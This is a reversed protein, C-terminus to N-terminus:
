GPLLATRRIAFVIGIVCATAILLVAFCWGAITAVLNNLSRDVKAVRAPITPAAIISEVSTLTVRLDRAAVASAELAATYERIDFPRGPPGDVPATPAGPPPMMRALLADIASTLVKHAACEKKARRRDQDRKAQRSVGGADFAMSETEPERRRTEGAHLVVVVVAMLLETVSPWLRPVVLLAVIWVLSRVPVFVRVVRVTTHPIMRFVFVAPLLM